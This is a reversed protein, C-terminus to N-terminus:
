LNVSRFIVISSCLESVLAQLAAQPSYRLLHGLVMCGREHVIAVGPHAKLGAAVFAITGLGNSNWVAKQNRSNNILLNCLAFFGQEQVGREATLQIAHVVAELGGAAAIAEQNHEKNLALNALAGCGWQQVDSERPMGRMAQVM